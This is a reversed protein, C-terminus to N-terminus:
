LAQSYELYRKLSVLVETYHDRMQLKAKRAGAREVKRWRNNRDITAESVGRNLAESNSGRRFSRSLGYEEHVNISSLILEPFSSQVRAIRELIEGDFDKLTARRGSEDAFLFGREIRRRERWELARKIWPGIQLGSNSKATVVVLHYSEGSEGKFRGRLPLIM